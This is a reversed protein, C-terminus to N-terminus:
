PDQESEIPGTAIYRRGCKCCEWETQVGRELDIILALRVRQGLSAAGTVGLQFIAGGCTCPAYPIPINM